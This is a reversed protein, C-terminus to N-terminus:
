NSPNGSLITRVQGIKQQFFVIFDVPNHATGGHIFLFPNFRQKRVWTKMQMIPVHGVRYAQNPNYGFHLRVFNIVKGCLAM